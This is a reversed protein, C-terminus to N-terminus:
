IRICVKLNHVKLPAITLDMLTLCSHMEPGMEQQQHGKLEVMEWRREWRWYYSKTGIWGIGAGTNWSDYLVM